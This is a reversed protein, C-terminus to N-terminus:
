RPYGYEFGKRWKGNKTKYTEVWLVRTDLIIIDFFLRMLKSHDRYNYTENFYKDIKGNARKVQNHEIQQTYEMLSSYLREVGFECSAYDSKNKPVNLTVSLMLEDSNSIHKNGFLTNGKKMCAGAISQNKIWVNFQNSKSTKAIEIHKGVFFKKTKFDFTLLTHTLYDHAQSQLRLLNHPLKDNRITSRKIKIQTPMILIYKQKLKIVVAEYSRSVYTNTAV